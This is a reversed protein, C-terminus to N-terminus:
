ARAQVREGVRRMADLVKIGVVPSLDITRVLLGRWRPVVRFIQRSDILRMAADAVDREDLPKPGAFLIAANRDREVTTVMDTGVVDPCLAKVKISLGAHDLDGQLSTTFSLVAAKTAAYMALGPVPGLASISAINLVTGGGEGMAQVAARSGAFVGKINVDVIADLHDTPHEWAHATFLVGANNIWVRLPGRSTAEAAVEGHSSLDRVDHAMAWAGRGIKDAAVQAADGDIDTLLVQHGADALKEALAFGIGRAAGTVVAVGANSM